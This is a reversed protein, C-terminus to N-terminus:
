RLPPLADPVEKGIKPNNFLDPPLGAAVLASPRYFSHHRRQHKNATKLTREEDFKLALLLGIVNDTEPYKSSNQLHVCLEQIYGTKLIQKVHGYNRVIYAYRETEFYIQGTKEYEERLDKGILEMLLDKALAEAEARKKKAEQWSKDIIGIPSPAPQNTQQEDPEDVLEYTIEANWSQWIKKDDTTYLYSASTQETTSQAWKYWIGKSTSDTTSQDVAWNLWVTASTESITSTTGTNNNWYTWAYDGTSPYTAM